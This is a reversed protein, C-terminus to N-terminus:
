QFRASVACHDPTHVSRQRLTSFPGILTQPKPVLRLKTPLQQLYPDYRIDGLKRVGFFRELDVRRSKILPQLPWDRTEHRFPLVEISYSRRLHTAVSPRVSYSM